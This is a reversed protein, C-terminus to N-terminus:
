RANIKCVIGGLGLVLRVTEQHFVAKDVIPCEM